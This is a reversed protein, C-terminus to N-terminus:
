ILRMEVIYVDGSITKACPRDMYEAPIDAVRYEPWSCRNVDRVSLRVVEDPLRGDVELQQQLTADYTIEAM